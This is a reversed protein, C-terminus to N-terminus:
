EEKFYYESLVERVKDPTMRGYIKGGISVVPALGCAGVCRLTDLTFLGDPTTEGSKIDLQRQFEELLKGAGRVYCATGLCVSIPYKGRPTMTFFSYFTVVGYVRSVPIRLESAIVEQVEQPLYGVVEQVAHLVSILEGPDNTHETCIAQIEKLTAAPM